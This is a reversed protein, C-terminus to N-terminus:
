KINWTSLIESLTKASTQLADQEQQTLDAQIISVLGTKDLVCPVSM